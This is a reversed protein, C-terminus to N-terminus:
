GCIDQFPEASIYHNWEDRTLPGGAISCAAAVLNKPRAVDWLWVDTSVGVLSTGDPSFVLATPFLSSGSTSSLSQGIQQNTSLDWIGVGSSVAAALYHGDPSFALASATEDPSGVNLPTGIERHTTMNWLQVAGYATTALIGGDPSFAVAGLQPNAVNPNSPIPLQFAGIEHHTSVDWLQAANATTTALTNGDQSFALSGIMGKGLPAGDARGTSVDVLQVGGSTSGAVLKGDPSFALLAPGALAGFRLPQGIRRRATVDWLQVTGDGNGVALIKGDPSFAVTSVVASSEVPGSPSLTAIHRHAPIGWLEAIGGNEAVAVTQSDPSIAVADVMISGQNGIILPTDIQRWSATDWLQIQGSGDATALLTATPSFAMALVQNSGTQLVGAQQQDATDWLEVTGGAGGTALLTSDASFAATEVMGGHIAMAPGTPQGTATRSLIAGIGNVTALLDGRPTFVVEDAPTLGDTPPSSVEAGTTVDWVQAGKYTVVALLTGNASLNLSTGGEGTNVPVGIQHRTAVNWFRVTSSGINMTALVPGRSTFALASVTAGNPGNGTRLPAGVRRGTTINWMQATGDDDASALIQGDPSFALADTGAGAPLPRTVQHQTAIDWIELSKSPAAALLKGNPSIALATDYGTGASIDAREPQTVVDLLSDRVQPTLDFHAAAAALKAATVPDTADLAESQAALQSALALDRQQTALNRQRSATRDALGALVAGSISIILLVALSAALLQRRRTSRTAARQSATMFGSQDQTLAPYRAAETAWRAAAQQVAALQSGRYLFSSDRGYEAWRAADEQLQTYLIWSAQERDLWSRLRPWARLLVDHAIQVTDGDLVLLRSAAFAELVNDIPHRATARQGAYLDARLVPRRALQGDPDVLVLAQFIERALQQGADPLAGYIAEAGFEVCRAVGGTEHYGRVTLRNGERKGWTLMMAQSLLPLIGEAEDRGATRLDALIADALDADIQLGAAAAPGTIAERLESGTMPGVVFLGDQMMRALGAHATCRAWFDGRVAVVVLAAPEGRPGAPQTAAACLAAIFTEQSADGRGQNLTFVEEFQDVALVLRGARGAAPLRGGSRRITGALAAQGVVLHARDPDAALGSRITEAASGSLAALRTALETLPDATPTMVVRPWSDSGELQIGAALAPLLGAHLLSSKGAGSAGSVVVMAPGALRGALKVMLDATLRQRGCFVEAHAQDFPLLGLYPCGAAWRLGRGADGAQGSGALSQRQKIAALDERVIRVDASQRRVMEGLARVQAGQGDLRRQIEAAEHDGHRLLFVMEPFGSSLNDIAAIVDSQLRDNGTEIAVLLASRMAGTKQLVKAIETRLAAGHGDQATLIQQIRQAIEAELDWRAPPQASRGARLSDIAGWILDGLVGDGSGSLTGLGPIAAAEAIGAAEVVSSIGSACLASLLVTPPIERVSCGADAAAREIRGRVADQFHRLGEGEGM